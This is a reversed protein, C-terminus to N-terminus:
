AASSFVSCAQLQRQRLGRQFVQNLDTWPHKSVRVLMEGNILMDQFIHGNLLQKHWMYEPSLIKTPKNYLLYKNSYSEDPLMVEIYHAQDMMVAQFCFKTLRYIELEQLTFTERMRLFTPKHSLSGKM